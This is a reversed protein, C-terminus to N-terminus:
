SDINETFTGWYCGNAVRLNCKECFEAARSKNAPAKLTSSAIFLMILTISM